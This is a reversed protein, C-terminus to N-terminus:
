PTPAPREFTIATREAFLAFETWGQYRFIPTTSAGVDNLRSNEGVAWFFRRVNVVWAGDNRLRESRGVDISSLLLLGRSRAQAPRPDNLALLYKM